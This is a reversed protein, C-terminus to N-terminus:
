SVGQGRIAHRRLDDRLQPTLVHGVSGVLQAMRGAVVSLNAGAEVLVALDALDSVRMFVYHGRTLRLLVQGCGGEGVQNAISNGLSILGSTMASLSDADDVSLGDSAILTLGDSSVILAHTVGPTSDVFTKVLWGFDQPNRPQGTTGSTITV